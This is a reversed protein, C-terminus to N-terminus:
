SILISSIANNKWDHIKNKNKKKKGHKWEKWANIIDEHITSCTIKNYLFLQICYFNLFM